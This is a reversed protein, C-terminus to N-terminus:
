NSELIRNMMENESRLIKENLEQKSIEFVEGATKAPLPEGWVFMMSEFASKITKKNM